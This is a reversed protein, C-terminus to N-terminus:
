LQGNDKFIKWLGEKKSEKYNGIQELQGNKHFSKYLGEQNNYM